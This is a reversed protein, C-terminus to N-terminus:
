RKQVVLKNIRFYNDCFIKSCASTIIIMCMIELEKEEKDVANKSREELERM